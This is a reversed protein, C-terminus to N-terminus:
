RGQWEPTRKERYAAPGAKADETAGAVKTNFLTHGECSTCATGPVWLDASGTDLVINFPGQADKAASSPGGIYM